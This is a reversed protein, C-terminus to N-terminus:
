PKKENCRPLEDHEKFYQEILAKERAEWDAIFERKYRKTDRKCPDEEFNTTWYHTFREKLNSSGGIYILVMKDDYFAYVGAGAAINKTNEEKWTYFDGSIEGM